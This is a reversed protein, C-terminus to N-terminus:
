GGSASLRKERISVFGISGRDVYVSLIFERAVTAAVLILQLGEQGVKGLTFGKCDM